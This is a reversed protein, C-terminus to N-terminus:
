DSIAISETDGCETRILQEIEAKVPQSLRRRGPIWDGDQLIQFAVTPKKKKEKDCHSELDKPCRSSFQDSPMAELIGGPCTPAATFGSPCVCCRSLHLPHVSPRVSPLISSLQTTIKVGGSWVKALGSDGCCRLPRWADCGDM